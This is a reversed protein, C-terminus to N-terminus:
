KKYRLTFRFPVVMACPQGACRGPTFRLHMFMAAALKGSESDPSKLLTVNQAMGQEDVSVNVHLDGTADKYSILSQIARSLELIGKEPYPPADDDQLVAYDSKVLQQQEPTLQAYSKEPPVMFGGSAIGRVNSGLAASQEKITYLNSPVALEPQATLRFSGNFRGKLVLGNPYIIEGDGVPRGKRWQGRYAGGMFFTMTGHGEPGDQWGGEYQDDGPSGFKVNGVPKDQEFNGELKAGGKFIVVAPGHLMGDRYNGEHLSGDAWQAIGAGEPLGKSLAGEYRETAKGDKSWQLAGPGSAYGDKCAGSWYAVHGAVRAHGAVRCDAKGAYILDSAGASSACLLVFLSLTKKMDDKCHKSNGYALMGSKISFACMRVRRM